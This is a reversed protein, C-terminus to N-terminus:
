QENKGLSKKLKRYCKDCLMFSHHIKKPYNRRNEIVLVSVYEKTTKIELGCCECYFIM